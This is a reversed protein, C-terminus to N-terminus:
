RLLLWAILVALAALFLPGLGRTARRYDEPIPSM